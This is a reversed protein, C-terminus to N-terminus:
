FGFDLDDLDDSDCNNKSWKYDEPADVFRSLIISKISQEFKSFTPAQTPKQSKEDQILSTPKFDKSAIAQTIMGGCKYNINQRNDQQATTSLLGALISATIKM